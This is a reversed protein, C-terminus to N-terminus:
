SGSRGQLQSWYRRALKPLRSKRVTRVIGALRTPAVAGGRGRKADLLARKSLNSWILPSPEYVQILRDSHTVVERCVYSFNPERGFWSRMKRETVPDHRHGDISGPPWAHPVSVIVTSGGTFFKRAFAAPQEVHELVQLCTVIDFARDAQWRLFDARIARIGPGEYPHEFDLSTRVPIHPFWGLYPCAGSGVDLMSEADSGLGEVLQRVVQYYLLDQRGDWYVNRHLAKDMATM